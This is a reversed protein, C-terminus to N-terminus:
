IFARAGTDIDYLFELLVGNNAYNCRVQRHNWWHVHWRSYIGWGGYGPGLHGFYVERFWVCIATIDAYSMTHAVVAPAEPATAVDAVDVAAPVTPAEPAANALNGGGVFLAALVAAAVLGAVIALRGRGKPRGAM